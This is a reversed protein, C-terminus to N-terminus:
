TEPQPNFIQEFLLKKNKQARMEDITANALTIKLRDKEWTGITLQKTIGKLPGCQIHYVNKTFDSPSLKFLQQLLEEAGVNELIINSDYNGSTNAKADTELLTYNM